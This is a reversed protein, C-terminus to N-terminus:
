APVHLKLRGPVFGEPAETRLTQQKGNNYWKKGRSNESLKQKTEESHKHGLCPKKGVRSIRMKEKTEESHSRGYMPHREGKMGPKGIKSKSLNKRHDLSLSKGFRFHKEGTKGLMPSQNCYFKKSTQKAKNAFHPNIHVEYFDHLIVEAQLADERTEFTQLIIKEKPRFTKDRFSGFYQTDEEPLCRCSRSGIYGRGWEEYSFYVYHHRNKEM